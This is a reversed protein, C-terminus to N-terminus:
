LSYCWSANLVLLIYCSSLAIFKLVIAELTLEEHPNEFLAVFYWGGDLLLAYGDCQSPSVDQCPSFIFCSLRSSVKDRQELLGVRFLAM